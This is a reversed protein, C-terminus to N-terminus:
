GRRKGKKQFLALRENLHRLFERSVMLAHRKGNIKYVHRGAIVEQVETLPYATEKGSISIILHTKTLTYRPRLLWKYVFPALGVVAVAIAIAFIKFGTTQSNMLSSAIMMGVVFLLTELMRLQFSKRLLLDKYTAEAQFLVENNKQM